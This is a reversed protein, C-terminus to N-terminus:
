FYKRLNRSFCKRNNRGFSKKKRKKNLVNETRVPSKELIFIRSNNSGIDSWRKKM